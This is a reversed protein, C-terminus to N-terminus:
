FELDSSSSNISRKSNLFYSSLSKKINYYKYVTEFEHRSKEDRERERERKRKHGERKSKQFQILNLLLRASRETSLRTSNITNTHFAPIKEAKKGGL